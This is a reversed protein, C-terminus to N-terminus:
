ERNRSYKNLIKNMYNETPKKKDKQDSNKNDNTDDLYLQKLVKKYSELRDIDAQEIIRLTRAIILTRTNFVYEKFNIGLSNLFDSIEKNAKFEEKSLVLTTLIAYLEYRMLDPSNIDQLNKIRVKMSWNIEM